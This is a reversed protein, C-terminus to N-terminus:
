SVKKRLKIDEYAMRIQSLQDALILRINSPLDDDQLAEEYNRIAAEEGTISAGLMAESSDSTLASKLDMWVRWADGILRTGADAQHPKDSYQLLEREFDETQLAYKNFLYSLDADKVNGAAKRYGLVRENCVELIHNVTSILEESTKM